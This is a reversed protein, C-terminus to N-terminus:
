EYIDPNREEVYFKYGKFEFPNGFRRILNHLWSKKYGFFEACSKMSEFWKENNNRTVIVPRQISCVQKTLGTKIAHNINEERTCWELNLYNNNMKNGDVHNVEPKNGTNNIFAEAVLRHILHSKTKGSEDTLVQFLYGNSFKGGKLIKGCLKRGDKSKRDLSRVRGLNSIEYSQEYGKIPKWIEFMNM